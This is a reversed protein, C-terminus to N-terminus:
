RRRYAKRTAGEAENVIQRIKELNEVSLESFAYDSFFLLGTITLLLGLAKM